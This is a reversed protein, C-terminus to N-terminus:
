GRMWFMLPRAPFVWLIGALPYFIIRAGQSDPLWNVGVWVCIMTYVFLWILLIFAGLLKRTRLPM